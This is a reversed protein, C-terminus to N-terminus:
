DIDMDDADVDNQDIVNAEDITDNPLLEEDGDDDLEVFRPGDFIPEVIIEEEEDDNDDPSPLRAKPNKYLVLPMEITNQDYPYPPVYVTKNVKM